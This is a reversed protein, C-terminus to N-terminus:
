TFSIISEAKRHYSKFNRYLHFSFNMPRLTYKEVGHEFTGRTLDASHCFSLLKQRRRGRLLSIPTTMVNNNRLSNQCPIGTNKLVGQEDICVIVRLLYRVVEDGLAHNM